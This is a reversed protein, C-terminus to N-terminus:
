HGAGRTHARRRRLSQTETGWVWSTRPLCRSLAAFLLRDGPRWPVRKARRRLVRVEHRLALLEADRARDAPTRVLALDLLLRVLAYTLSLLMPLAYQGPSDPGM